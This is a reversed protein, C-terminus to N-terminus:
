EAFFSLAEAGREFRTPGPVPKISNILTRFTMRMETWRQPAYSSLELLYSFTEDQLRVIERLMPPQDKSRALVVQSRGVLTGVRVEEADREEVENGLHRLYQVSTALTAEPVLVLPNAAYTMIWSRNAPYDPPLWETALSHPVPQWAAPPAYEFRRRRLGLAQSDQETLQRVLATFQSRATEDLCLGSIQAYFDDGFVFGLDRQVKAGQQRGHVTVAAAHEGERTVLREVTGISDLQFAPTQALAARVLAGVRALPRLRDSYVITGTTQGKPHVLVLGDRVLNARWGFPSPIV